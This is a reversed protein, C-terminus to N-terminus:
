ITITLRRRPNAAKETAPAIFNQYIVIGSILIDRQLSLPTWLPLRFSWLISYRTSFHVVTKLITWEWTKVYQILNLDPGPGSERSMVLHDSNETGTGVGVQRRYRCDTVMDRYKQRLLYSQFLQYVTPLCINALMVGFGIRSSTTHQWNNTLCNSMTKSVTLQGYGTAQTVIKPM